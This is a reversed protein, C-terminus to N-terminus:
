LPPKIENNESFYKEELGKGYMEEDILAENNNGDDWDEVETDDFPSSLHHILSKESLTSQFESFDINEEELRSLM